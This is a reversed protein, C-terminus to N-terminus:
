ATKRWRSRRNRAQDARTAWRLNGPEYNGDNDVRDISGGEPRPGLNADLWSAFAPFDRVWPEYMTIGRGGYQHYDQWSQSFCRRKISYWLRYRYDEGGVGHKYHAASSRERKLCGCSRSARAPDVHILNSIAVRRETGCTCRCWAHAGSLLEVVTWRM